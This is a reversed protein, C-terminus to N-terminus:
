GCPQAAAAWEQNYKRVAAAAEDMSIDGPVAQYVASAFEAPTGHKAKLRKQTATLRLMVIESSRWVRGAKRNITKNM